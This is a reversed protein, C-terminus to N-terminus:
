SRLASVPQERHAHLWAHARQIRDGIGEAWM